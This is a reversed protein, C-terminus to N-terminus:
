VLVLRTAEVLQALTGPFNDLMLSSAIRCADALDTGTFSASLGAVVSWTQANEWHPFSRGQDDVVMISVDRWHHSPNFGTASSAMVTEVTSKSSQELELSVRPRRDDLVPTPAENSASKVRTLCNSIESVQNTMFADLEIGSLRGLLDELAPVLNPNRDLDWSPLWRFGMLLQRLLDLDTTWGPAALLAPLDGLRGAPRFDNPLTRRMLWSLQQVDEIKDFPVCVHQAYKRQRGQASLVSETWGSSEAITKAEEVVDDPVVPNNVLAMIMYQDAKNLLARAQDSTLSRCGAAAMLLGKCASDIAISVLDPHRALLLGFEGSSQTKATDPYWQDVTEISTRMEEIDVLNDLMVSLWAKGGVIRAATMRAPRNLINPDPVAGKGRAALVEVDEPTLHDHYLVAFAKLARTPIKSSLELIKEINERSFGPRNLLAVSTKIATGKTYALEIALEPDLAINAALAPRLASDDALARQAAVDQLASCAAYNWIM